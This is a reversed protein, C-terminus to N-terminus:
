GDCEVLVKRLSHKLHNSQYFSVVKRASIIAEEKTKPNRGVREKKENVSFCGFKPLKVEGEKELTICIEEFITDIVDNAESTSIGIEKTIQEALYSRTVVDDSM